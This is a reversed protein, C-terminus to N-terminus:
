DSELSEVWFVACAGDGTDTRSLARRRTPADVLALRRVRSILLFRHM